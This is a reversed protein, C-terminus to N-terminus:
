YDKLTSSIENKICEEEFNYERDFEIANRKQLKTNM